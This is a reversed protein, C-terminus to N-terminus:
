SGLTEQAIYDAVEIVWANISRHMESKLEYDSLNLEINSEVRGNDLFELYMSPNVENSKSGKLQLEFHLTGKSQRHSPIPGNVDNAWRGKGVSIFFNEDGLQARLEKNIQGAINAAIQQFNQFRSAASSEILVNNIIRRLTSENLRITKRM